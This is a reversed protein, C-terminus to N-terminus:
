KGLSNQVWAVLGSPIGVLLAIQIANEALYNIVVEPVGPVAWVALILGIAVGAIAQLATRLGKVKPSM